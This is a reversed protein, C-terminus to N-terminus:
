SHGFVLLHAAFGGVDMPTVLDVVLESKALEAVFPEFERRPDYWVVTGAAKLHPLLIAVLHEHLAHM